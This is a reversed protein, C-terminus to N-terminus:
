VGDTGNVTIGTVQGTTLQSVGTATLVNRGTYTLGEPGVAAIAPTTPATIGNTRLALLQDAPIVALGIPPQYTVAGDTETIGIGPTILLGASAASVGLIVISVLTIVRKTKESLKHFHTNM